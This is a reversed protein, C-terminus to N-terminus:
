GGVRFANGISLAGYIYALFIIVPRLYTSAFDCVPSMGFVLNFSQGPLPIESVVDPPCQAVVSVYDKDFESPNKLPTNDTPVPTGEIDPEVKFWDIFDCVKSAWSCFAPLEFDKPKTEDMKKTIEKTSEKVADAVKDGVADVKEGTATVKDGVGRFEGGLFVGRLRFVEFIIAYHPLLVGVGDLREADPRVVGHSRVLVMVVAILLGCVVAALHVLERLRHGGVDVLVAVARVGNRAHRHAVVVAVGDGAHGGRLNDHEEDVGAVADDLLRHAVEGHGLEEAHAGDDERHVFDVEDAVGLLSEVLDLRLEVGLGRGLPQLQVLGQRPQGVHHVLADAGKRAIEVGAQAGEGLQLM